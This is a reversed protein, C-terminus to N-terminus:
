FALSPHHELAHQSCVQDVWPYFCYLLEHTRNVENEQMYYM